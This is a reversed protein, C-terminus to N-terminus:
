TTETALTCGNSIIKHLTKIKVKLQNPLLNNIKIYTHNNNLNKICMFETALIWDNNNVINLIM